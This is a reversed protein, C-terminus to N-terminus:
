HINHKSHVKFYWDNLDLETYKQIQQLIRKELRKTFEEYLLDTEENNKTDLKNFVSLFSRQCIQILNEINM